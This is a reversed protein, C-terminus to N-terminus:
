KPTRVILARELVQRTVPASNEGGTRQTPTTAIRDVADMGSVVEGFASYQGDLHRANGHMVFFQCSASNPDASRAMSLVGRLHPKDSPELKVNRPGSGTGTGTRDGGQIMFGPVVRHFPTDDYFKTYALDLFNRTHEPAVTPWLKVLVDGQNTRLLVQYDGLEGAPLTMFDLGEPARELVAVEVPEGESVDSAYGLKFAKTSTLYPGLDLSGSIKFGPPLQLTGSDSRKDLPKGDVTFAAPTFLWSAVVTGGEPADVEIKVPYSLGPVFTTPAEWRLIPGAARPANPAPVAHVGSLLVSSLILNALIM